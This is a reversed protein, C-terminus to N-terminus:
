LRDSRTQVQRQAHAEAALCLVEFLIQAGALATTGNPDYPPSVEVVDAGIVDLGRFGQLLQLAERTSLGGIVPTGTGPAFAPDLADIDFSIYVPGDGIVRRAVAVVEPWGIQQCHHMPLVTVGARSSLSAFEYYPDRLAIQVMRAPDVLGEHLSHYFPTGHHYRVGHHPGYTDYHADIHILGVPREAALAKLIPYTVSHDGGVSIPITRARQAEQYFIEINHMIVELNLASEFPVNGRDGIRALEYPTIRTVPNSYGIFGSQARVAQPGYRAGPRCTLGADSPIGILAIDMHQWDEKSDAGFFTSPASTGPLTWVNKGYSQVRACIETMDEDVTSGDTFQEQPM